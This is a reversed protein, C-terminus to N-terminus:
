AKMRRYVKTDGYLVEFEGDVEIAPKFRRMWCDCIKCPSDAEFVHNLTNKRFTRYRQSSWIKKLSDTNANGMLNQASADCGCGSVRGDALVGIFFFPFPCYRVRFTEPGTFYKEPEHISWIPMRYTSVQVADAIGAWHKIFRETDEKTDVDVKNILVFPKKKDGRIRILDRINQEIVEINSGVRWLDNAKGLRDVSCTIQDVGLDVLLKSMNKSLLTANDFWSIKGLGRYQAFVAYTVLEKFQPHLLSEGGYNLTVEAHLNALQDIIKKFFDVSIFRPKELGLKRKREIECMGCHLNCVNTIEIAAFTVRPSILMREAFFLHTDVSVKRVGRVALSKLGELKGRRKARELLGLNRTKM